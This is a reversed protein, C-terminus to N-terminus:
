EDGFITVLFNRFDEKANLVKQYESEVKKIEEPTLEHYKYAANRNTLFTSYFFEASKEASQVGGHGHGFDTLTTRKAKEINYYDWTM